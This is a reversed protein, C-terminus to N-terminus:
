PRNAASIRHVMAVVYGHHVAAALNDSPMSDAIRDRLDTNGGGVLRMGGGSAMGVMATTGDSDEEFCEYGQQWAAKFAPMEEPSIGLEAAFGEATLREIV